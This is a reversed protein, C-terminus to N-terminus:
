ESRDVRIGCVRSKQLKKTLRLMPHTKRANEKVNLATKAIRTRKRKWIFKLIVKNSHAFFFM